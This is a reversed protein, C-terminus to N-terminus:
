SKTIAEEMNYMTHLIQMLAALEVKDKSEDMPYEGITIFQGAREPSNKFSEFQEKHYQVMFSTEESTAKRCLILQYGKRIKAEIDTDEELLRGALVRAAELITPDNLMILAQLPTNTSQRKVQCQDRSSADFMLMTPPPVTRKIFTYMGRRYLDEGHDQVYARLLGRGSTAADWLGAPQYPKVSPGGIDQNLLGSNALVHDRITEASFRRRSM